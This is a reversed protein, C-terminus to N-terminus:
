RRPTGAAPPSAASCRARRSSARSISLSRDFESAFSGIRGADIEVTRSAFRQGVELEDLRFLRVSEKAPMTTM